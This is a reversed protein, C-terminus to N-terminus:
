RDYKQLTIGDKLLTIELRSHQGPMVSCTFEFLEGQQTYSKRRICFACSNAECLLLKQMKKDMAIPEYSEVASAIDLGSDVLMQYLSKKRLMEAELPPCFSKVLTTKELVLPAEDAFRLREIVYVPTGKAIGSEREALADVVTSEFSIVQSFTDYGMENLQSTFSYLHGLNRSVKPVSVFSGLGRRRIVLGKEELRKFAQRVTSRSLGFRACFEGESPVPTGPRLQNTQIHELIIAELQLYLPTDIDMQLPKSWLDFGM